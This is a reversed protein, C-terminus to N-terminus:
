SIKPPQWISLYVESFFSTYYIPFIEEVVPKLSYITSAYFINNISHGCCACICFPSCHETDSDHDSHDTVKYLSHEKDQYRCNDKDNCPVIALVILYFSFIFIFIKM